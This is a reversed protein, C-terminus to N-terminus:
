MRDLYLSTTASSNRLSDGTPFCGTDILFQSSGNIASRDYRWIGAGCFGVHGPAVPTPNHASRHETSACPDFGLGHGLEHVVSMLDYNTGANGDTGYYTFTSSFNAVIDVSESEPRNEPSRTILAASVV